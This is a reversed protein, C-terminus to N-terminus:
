VDIMRRPGKIEKNSKSSLLQVSPLQCHTGPRRCVVVWGCLLQISGNIINDLPHTTTTTRHPPASSPLFCTSTLCFPLLALLSLVISEFLPLNRM